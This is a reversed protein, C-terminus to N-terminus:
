SDDETAAHAALLTAALDPIDNEEFTEIGSLVIGGKDGLYVDEPEGDLMVSWGPKGNRRYMSDPLKVVAYGAASLAEIAIDALASSGYRSHRGGAADIATAVIMRTSM